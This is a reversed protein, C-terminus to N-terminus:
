AFGSTAALVCAITFAVFALVAVVILAIRVVSSLYGGHRCKLWVRVLGRFLAFLALAQLAIADLPFLALSAFALAGGFLAVRARAFPFVRVV